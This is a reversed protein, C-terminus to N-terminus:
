KGDIWNQFIALQKRYDQALEETLIGKEQDFTTYFQPLSYHALIEGGFRPFTNLTLQMVNAGGRGGPSTSLVLLHKGTAFKPEIRSVWDLINKFAATYNSNHEAFSIVLGDHQAILGAFEHALAPIGSAKERDASYIPMEFDNLDILTASVNTLQGITYEAFKKNISTSSNSAGFALIKKM